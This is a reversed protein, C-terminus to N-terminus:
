MKIIQNTFEAGCKQVKPLMLNYLDFTRSEIQLFKPVVLDNKLKKIDSSNTIIPLQAKNKAVQLIEKGRSNFGLVKIYPPWFNFIEKNIDLFASLIIRQIRLLTYRKSKTQAYVEELSVANQVAKYIKNELGEAVDAINLFDAQNMCRLKALIARECNAMQAPAFGLKMERELIQYASKPMFKSISKDNKLIMKRLFTSSAFNSVIFNSDHPSGKRLIPLLNISSNFFNLSKIYEVALINNPTAMITAWDEGFLTKIANHRATAFSIGQKLYEKTLAIVEISNSIQATKQLKNIDDNECGFSLIDVCNLSNALFIAGLAFKEANAISYATPLEIVLDCGNELAIETKARKSIVSPTGRQSFNGSMIAVIHTVGNKRNQEIQYKHGNHFPNYECVIASIKM